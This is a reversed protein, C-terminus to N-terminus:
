QTRTGVSAGGMGMKSKMKSCLRLSLIVRVSKSPWTEKIEIPLFTINSIIKDM